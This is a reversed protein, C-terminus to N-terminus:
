AGRAWGGGLLGGVHGRRARESQHIWALIDGIYRKPDHAHIEIPKPVGGPGGKTLANIFRRAGSLRTPKWLWRCLAAAAAAAPPQLLLLLLRNCSCCCCATAPAAAAPPQLLPPDRRQFISSHRAATVEEACYRFLIPRDRLFRTATPLLPHADSGDSDSLARCVAPPLARTLGLAM